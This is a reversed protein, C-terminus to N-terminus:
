QAAPSTVENSYTAEGKAFWTSNSTRPSVSVRYTASPAIGSFVTTTTAADAINETSLNKWADGDKSQLTVTYGGCNEKAVANWKATASCTGGNYATFDGLTIGSVLPATMFQLEYIDATSYGSSSSPIAQTTVVYTTNQKLGEFTHNATRADFTQNIVEAGKSDRTGENIIIKYGDCNSNPVITWYITVSSSTTQLSNIGIAGFNPYDDDSCGVFVSASAVCVAATLMLKRFRSM